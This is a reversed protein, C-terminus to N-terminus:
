KTPYNEEFTEQLEQMIRDLLDAQLLTGHDRGPFFEIVADSGLKGLSEKLLMVGQELYFNDVTGVYVHLKGELDKKLKKWNNELIMRIDYRKWSEAVSINLEGTKRNWLKEPRGSEDRKSFVAEFSGMQGGDGLVVEMDSFAKLRLLIKGNRRMVPKLTDNKYFFNDNSDYININTFEILDVPDPATSWVSGFVKPYTVQLWLSSWGGSSHGTVFRANTEGIARYKKEIYPIFEETLAKGWPGNNDSDAFVHHGLPCEANLVVYITEIKERTQFMYAYRRTSYHNGGFGHIIYLIPYKKEPKEFYSKPLVVGAKLYTPKGLFKSVLESKLTIEKIFKGEQFKRPLIVQNITIDILNDNKNSIYGITTKSFANGAETAFDRENTNFDILARIAYNNEELDEFNIPYSLLNDKIILEQNPQWDTIDISFFPKPNAWAVKPVVEKTTDSDLFLYLRGSIAQKSVEETFKVKFASSFSTISIFLSGVLILLYKTM